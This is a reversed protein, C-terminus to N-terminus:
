KVKISYPNIRLAGSLTTAAEDNRKADYLWVGYRVDTDLMTRRDFDASHMASGLMTIACDKDQAGTKPEKGGRDYLARSLASLDYFHV